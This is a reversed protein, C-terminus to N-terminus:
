DAKKEQGGREQGREPKGTHARRRRPNWRRGKDKRGKRVRGPSERTQRSKQGGCVAGYGGVARACSREWGRMRSRDAGM